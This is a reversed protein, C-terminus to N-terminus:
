VAMRMQAEVFAKRAVEALDHKAWGMVRIAEDPTWIGFTGNPTIVLKCDEIRLPRCLLTFYAVIKFGNGRSVPTALLAMDVIKVDVKQDM